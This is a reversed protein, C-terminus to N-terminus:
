WSAVRRAHRGRARPDELIALAHRAVADPTFDDQMLEPVVERGAVLNAMAFTNVRVFPRGLRYTLRRCGTSSSWRASAAAGGARHGHGVRAAGRRGRRARRRDGARHTTISLGRCASAPLCSTPCIRRAPWCSSRPRCAPTSSGRPMSCGPCSPVCKTSAAGPCCRWSRVRRTSGWARRSLGRAAGAGGDVDLLPHGVWEVPVGARRYIEEEFPFIVLVRDAIRQMTKMRGPRWAWLQPSIYYVVPVGLKRM